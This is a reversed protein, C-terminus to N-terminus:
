DQNKLLILFTERRIRVELRKKPLQNLRTFLYIHPHSSIQMLAVEGLKKKAGLFLNGSGDRGVM